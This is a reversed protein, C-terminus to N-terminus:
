RSPGMVLRGGEVTIDRRLGHVYVGQLVLRRVSSPLLPPYGAELGVSSLRLGTWGFMIQQLFGGAGTLFDTADEETPTESLVLFPGRLWPRYTRALLSDVLARNGLEAAVVPYLTVTMMAGGGERALRTVAHALDARKARVPMPLALPYALLPVVSGLTQPAAKEYTPHFAAVSDYPVHLGAAVASWAPPPRRRLVRAAASAAELNRWAVGNTYADDDVGM